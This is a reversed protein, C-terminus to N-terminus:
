PAHLMADKKWLSRQGRLQIGPESPCRGDVEDLRFPLGQSEIFAGSLVLAGTFQDYVECTAEDPSLAARCDVFAGCHAGGGWRAAPPVGEPRPPEVLALMGGKVIIDDGRISVYAKRGLADMQEGTVGSLHFYGAAVLAGSWDNFSECRYTAGASADALYRRCSVFIGGKSGGLWVADVPVGSPLRHGQEAPGRCNLLMTVLLALACFARM